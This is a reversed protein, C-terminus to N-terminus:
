LGNHNGSDHEGETETEAPPPNGGGEADAQIQRFQELTEKVIKQLEDLAKEKAEITDLEAIADALSQTRQEIETRGTEIQKILRRRKAAESEVKRPRDEAEVAKWHRYVTSKGLGTDKVCEAATGEPYKERWKQVTEYQSKRGNNADWREGRRQARIDRIARAEELHDRQRQYNRKNEPIKIGSRYEISARPYTTWRDNFSELAALVDDSSFHNDEKETLTEMPDLLEFCDRELEERTVPNPNHKEDYISCKQAYMALTMLCYYRHGVKAKVSIERKWWDYLSRNVAWTGRKQKNTIRKEYWDPYKERAEALRMKGGRKYGEAKRAKYTEEVFGNLYDLTIREGTLFAKARGGSKTITGPMRFGQYIGEQQIDNEGAIDVIYGNWVKRTLERKLRQLEKAIDNYLPLPTELVYYLHLGTGSSVMYTPVPLYHVSHYMQHYLDRLGEPVGTRRDPEMRIHDVDIAIAYVFRANEATREKGAYSIPSCLCFNDSAIATDVADLEDTLTYRKIKRNGDTRRDGTIEVIIGTYKGTRPNGIHEGKKELEGAPFIGRYFDKPSVEPFMDALWEQVTEM